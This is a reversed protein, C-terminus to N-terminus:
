CRDLISATELGIEQFTAVLYGRLANLMADINM